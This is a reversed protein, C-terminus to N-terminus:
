PKKSAVPVADWFTTNLTETLTVPKELANRDLQFKRVAELKPVDLVAVGRSTGADAIVLKAYEALMAAQHKRDLGPAVKMLIDIAEDQHEIAYKWGRLSANM